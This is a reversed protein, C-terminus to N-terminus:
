GGREEAGGDGTPQPGRLVDDAAASPVLYEGTRWCSLRKKSWKNLLPERLSMMTPPASRNNQEGPAGTSGTAELVM